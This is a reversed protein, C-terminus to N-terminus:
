SLRDRRGERRAFYRGPSVGLARRFMAVFASPSQYGLDLAAATVGHGGALMELAKLLRAQQRWAGFTMGTEKVFLRSLTRASAGAENSWEALTRNIGPEALLASTIRGLRADVAMPLHLPTVPLRQLQDLIVDMLRGDPGDLDYLPPIEVARLILERLLPSVTVVCCEAPLGAKAGAAVFLSRMRIPGAAGVRHEMGGPVWVARQPPIVWVGIGTTVTMVGREAYILQSRPHSHPAIKHDAPYDSASAVIPRPVDQLDRIRQPVTM